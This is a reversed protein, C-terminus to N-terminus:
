GASAAESTPNKLDKARMMFEYMLASAFYAGGLIVVILLIGHGYALALSQVLLASFVMKFAHILAAARGRMDPMYSLVKPYLINNPMVVLASIVAMSATIALPRAGLFIVHLLMLVVVAVTAWLCFRVCTSEGFRKSIRPTVISAISFTLALAGLHFGMAVVSVGLENVYYIASFGLFALYNARLLSVIFAGPLWDLRLLSFYSSVSLRVSQNGPSAPMCTKILLMASLALALLIVFSGQWGFATTASAGVVPAICTAIAVVASVKGVLVPHKDSPNNELLVVLSLVVPASAGIGQLFRGATLALLHPVLTLISGAIFISLCGLIVKHKDYRDGIVGMAIALISFGVFYANLMLSLDQVSAGFERQIAPLAPNFIDLGSATLIYVVTVALLLGDQRVKSIQSSM